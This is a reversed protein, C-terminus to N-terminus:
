YKMKMKQFINGQIIFTLKTPFFFIQFLLGTFTQLLRLTACKPRGSKLDQSFAQYQIM